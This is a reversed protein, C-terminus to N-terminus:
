HRVVQEQEVRSLLRGVERCRRLDEQHLDVNDDIEWAHMEELEGEDRSVAAKLYFFQKPTLEVTIM